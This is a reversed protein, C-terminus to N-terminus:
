LLLEPGEGTVVVREQLDQLLAEAAAGCRLQQGRGRGDLRKLLLDVVQVRALCAHERRGAPLEALAEVHLRVLIDDSAHVHARQRRARVDGLEARERLGVQM